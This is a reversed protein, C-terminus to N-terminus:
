SDSNELDEKNENIIKNYKENRNELAEENISSCFDITEDKMTIAKSLLKIAAPKLYSKTKPLIKAAIIGAAAGFFFKNMKM